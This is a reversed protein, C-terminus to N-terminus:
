PQPPPKGPRAAAPGPLPLVVRLVAGTGHPPDTITVTGGHAAVVERVIALGLGTGGASRQRSEDLRVFRDFVRDREEAPVGPGDDGVEIVVRGPGDLRVDFRVTSAAYRAANDALNRVVQALQHRDGRVQVPAIRATLTLAPFQAALRRREVDLLDDLDVDTLRLRLAHEDARTLLLLGSIIRELRDAEGRLVDVSQHSDAPVRGRLIELGAQVTTLPSRLEHSADAVFRHQATASTELRDLMANMTEALRAVEDHAPPVPVRAHLQSATIGAVERRIAEVPRLSRGVFLFTASGIVLLLLPYGIMLLTTAEDVSSEVPQLSQGVLVTQTGSTTAVGMAVMRFPEEEAVPLNRDERASSGAAPRLPSLAKEDSVSPSAVAVQGNAKIVQAVTQEAPGAELARASITDDRALDAALIQARQTAGDDVTQVLSARYVWVFVMAAVGLTVAAVGAAALASRVRVGSRRRWWALV